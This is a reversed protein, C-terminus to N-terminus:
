YECGKLEKYIRVAKINSLCIKNSKLLVGNIDYPSLSIVSQAVNNLDTAIEKIKAIVFRSMSGEQILIGILFDNDRGSILESLIYETSNL